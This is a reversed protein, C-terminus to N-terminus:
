LAWWLGWLKHRARNRLSPVRKSRRHKGGTKGYYWGERKNRSM